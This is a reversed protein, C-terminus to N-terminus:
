GAARLLGVHVCLGLLFSLAVVGHAPKAGALLEPGGKAGSCGAPVARCPCALQLLPICPVGRAGLASPSSERAGWAPFDDRAQSAASLRQEGVRKTSGALTSPCLYPQQQPACM